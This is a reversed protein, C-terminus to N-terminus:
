VASLGLEQAHQAHKACPLTKMLIDATQQADRCEDLDVIEKEYLTHIYRYKIAIHKSRSHYRGHKTIAIAGKNDGYIMTPKTQPYGLEEYLMRLWEAECGAESM